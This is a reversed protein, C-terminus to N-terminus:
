FEIIFGITPLISPTEDQLILPIANSGDLRIPQGDTTVFATSEDNRQFTYNPRSPGKQYLVNTVDIYPNFSFKRFSYKKDIRLNLNSFARLRQTNLRSYDPIGSGGTLYARQSAVLDFPTYPAGGQYNYRAGVEWGRNFKYGGTLAILHRSDWASPQLVGDLGSFRSYYFTYSLIGYFRKTLKQQAFVEFGYAEGKGTSVIDENGIAGFDSGQNALSIGDAVSVPVRDYKKLFGEITFRTTSRPLYEVGAVYHDCIIYRADKNQLGQSADSFGLITYPPIRAYRGVTANLTWKEALLFSAAV